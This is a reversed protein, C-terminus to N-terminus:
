RVTSDEVQFDMKERIKKDLFEAAEKSGYIALCIFPVRQWVSVDVALRDNFIYALYVVYLFVFIKAFSSVFSYIMRTM